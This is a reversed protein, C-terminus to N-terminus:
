PLIPSLEPFRGEADEKPPWFEERWIRRVVDRATEEAEALDEETWTAERLGTSETKKPLLIYGLSVNRDKIVHGALRRYLPLQLDIWVRQGGVKKHHSQEPKTNDTDTVKYDLILYWQTERHQDIRDIRGKLRITKGDVDLLVPEKPEYEAHLIRWQKAHEAQFTAFARLRAKLQEIQIPVAPLPAASLRQKIIAELRRILHEAIADADTSDRLRSRAFECLVQHALEGFGAPDLEEIQDNVTAVKLIHRLYFRYPCALYDRFQTVRIETIPEVPQPRPPELHQNNPAATTWRSPRRRPSQDGLGFYARVQKVMTEDDPSFLFRSPLLTDGDLNQRGAILQYEERSSVLLSLNYADRAFRQRNDAIGLWERLRPPLLPDSRVASPIYGENVMTVITAPADDWPLDLWGMLEISPGPAEAALRQHVLQQEVWHLLDLPTGQWPVQDLLVQPVQQWTQIARLIIRCIELTQPNQQLGDPDDPQGFCNLLVRRIMEGATDIRQPKTWEEPQLLNWVAEWIEKVPGHEKAMAQADMLLPLREGIWEDMETLFDRSQDFRTRLWREMQPHRILAAFAPATPQSVFQQLSRMLVWVSSQLVPRGAGFRGVLDHQELAEQILPLLREDPLGITIEEVSFRDGWKALADIVAHAQDIPQHCVAIKDCPIRVPLEQWQEPILCGLDDFHDHLSEPALVLATVRNGLQRLMDRVIPPLDVLGVLLIERDTRCENNKLAERRAFDIDWLGCGHLAKLYYEELKCLTEWRQQDPFKPDHKLAEKLVTQCDYGAGLVERHFSALLQALALQQTPKMTPQYAPFLRHLLKEDAYALEKLAAWWALLCTAEDALPRHHPYLTEPLRGVTIVDPPFLVLKQGAAIDALRALFRRSSWGTPLVVRYGSLDWRPPQGPSVPVSAQLYQILAIVAPRSWDLFVRKVRGSFCTRLPSQGQEEVDSGKSSRPRAM